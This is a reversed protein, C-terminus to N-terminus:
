ARQLLDLARLHVQSMLAVSDPSHEYIANDIAAEVDPADHHRRHEYIHLEITDLFATFMAEDLKDTGLVTVTPCFRLRGDWEPLFGLPRHLTDSNPTANFWLRVPYEMPELSLAEAIRHFRLRALVERSATM